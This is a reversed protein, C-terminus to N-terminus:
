NSMINLNKFRNHHLMDILAEELNRSKKTWDTNDKKTQPTLFTISIKNKLNHLVNM